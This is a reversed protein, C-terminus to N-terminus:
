LASPGLVAGQMLPPLSAFRARVGAVEDSLGSFASSGASRSAPRPSCNPRLPAAARPTTSREIEGLAASYQPKLRRTSELLRKTAGDQLEFKAALVAAEDALQSEASGAAAAAM